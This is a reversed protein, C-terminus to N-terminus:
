ARARRFRDSRSIWILPVMVATTILAAAVLGAPTARATATLNIRDGVRLTLTARMEEPHAAERPEDLAVPDASVDEDAIEADRDAKASKKSGM